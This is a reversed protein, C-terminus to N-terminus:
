DVVQFICGAGSPNRIDIKSIQTVERGLLKVLLHRDM